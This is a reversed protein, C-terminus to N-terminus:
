DITYIFLFLKRHVSECTLLWCLVRHAATFQEAAFCWAAVSLVKNVIMQKKLDNADQFVKLIAKLMDDISGDLDLRGYLKFVFRIYVMTEEAEVGLQKIFSEIIIEFIRVTQSYWRRRKYEIVLWELSLTAVAKEPQTNGARLEPL